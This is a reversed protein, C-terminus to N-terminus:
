RKVRFNVLELEFYWCVPPEKGSKEYRKDMVYRAKLIAQDEDFARVTVTETKSDAYSFTYKNIM